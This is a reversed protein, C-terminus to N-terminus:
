VSLPVLSVIVNCGPWQSNWFPFHCNVLSLPGLPSQQFKVGRSVGAQLATITVAVCVAGCSKAPPLEDTLRDAIASSVGSPLKETPDKRALMLVWCAATSLAMRPFSPALTFM